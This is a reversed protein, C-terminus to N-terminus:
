AAEPVGQDEYNLELYADLCDELIASLQRREELRLERLQEVLAERCNKVTLTKTIM